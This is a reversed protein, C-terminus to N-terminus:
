RSSKSPRGISNLHRLFDTKFVSLFLSWKVRRRVNRELNMCEHLFLSLSFSISQDITRDISWYVSLVASCAGCAISPGRDDTASLRAHHSSHAATTSVFAPAALSCDGSNPGCIMSAATKKREKQRDTQRHRCDILAQFRRSRGWAQVCLRALSEQLPRGAEASAQKNGSALVCARVGPWSPTTAHAEIRTSRAIKWTLERRRRVNEM